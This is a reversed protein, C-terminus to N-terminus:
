LSNAVFCVASVVSFQGLLRHGDPSLVLTRHLPRGRVAARKRFSSRRMGALTANLSPDPDARPVLGFQESATILDPDRTERMKM